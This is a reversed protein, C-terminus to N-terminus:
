PNRMYDNKANTITLLEKEMSPASQTTILDVTLEECLDRVHDDLQRLESEADVRSASM